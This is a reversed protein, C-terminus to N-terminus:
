IITLFLKTTTKFQKKQSKRKYKGNNKLNNKKAKKLFEILEDKNLDTQYKIQNNLVVPVFFTNLNQRIYKSITSRAYKTIQSMKSITYFKTM